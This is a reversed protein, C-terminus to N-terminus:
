EGSNAPRDDFAQHDCRPNPAPVYIEDGCNRCYYTLHGGAALCTQYGVLTRGPGNRHNNRCFVPSPITYRGDRTRHLQDGVSVV